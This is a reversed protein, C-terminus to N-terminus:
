KTKIYKSPSGIGFQFYVRRGPISFTTNNISTFLSGDAEIDYAYLIYYGSKYNIDYNSSNRGYISLYLSNDYDIDCSDTRCYLLTIFAGFM